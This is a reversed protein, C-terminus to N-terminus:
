CGVFGVSHVNAKYHRISLLWALPLNASGVITKAVARGAISLLVLYAHRM